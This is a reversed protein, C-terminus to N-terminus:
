NNGAKVFQEAMENAGMTFMKGFLNKENKEVYELYGFAGGEVDTCMGHEAAYGMIVGAGEGHWIGLKWIAFAGIYLAGAKVMTMMVKNMNM